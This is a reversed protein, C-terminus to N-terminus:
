IYWDRDGYNAESDLLPRESDAQDIAQRRSRDTFYSYM